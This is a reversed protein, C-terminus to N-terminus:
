RPSAQHEECPRRLWIDQPLVCEAQTWALGRVTDQGEPGQHAHPQPYVGGHIVLHEVVFTSSLSGAEGTGPGEWDWAAMEDFVVDRSIVVKGRKPDYLRYAKTGEKYGLLVM